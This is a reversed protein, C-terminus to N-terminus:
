ENSEFELAAERQDDTLQAKRIAAADTEFQELIPKIAEDVKHRLLMDEFYSLQKGDKKGYVLQRIRSIERNRKDCLEKLKSEIEIREREMAEQHERHTRQRESLALKAAARREISALEADAERVREM